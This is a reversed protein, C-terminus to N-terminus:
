GRSDGAAENFCLDPQAQFMKADADDAPIVRPRMSARPRPARLRLLPEDDAPIVRPRMSAGAVEGVLGARM